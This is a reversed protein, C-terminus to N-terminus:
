SFLRLPSCGHFVPCSGPNPGPRHVFAQIGNHFLPGEPGRERILYPSPKLGPYRKPLRAAEAARKM